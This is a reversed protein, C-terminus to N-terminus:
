INNKSLFNSIITSLAGIKIQLSDWNEKTLKRQSKVYSIGLIGILNNNIDKLTILYLSKSKLLKILLELDTHNILNTNPILIENEKHLESLTHPFFSVPINQLTTLVSTAVPSVKEHFLSFKQISKGTPYFNGGNHFQAIWINDCEISKQLTDLHKDILSNYEITDNFHKTKSQKSSKRKVREILVPGIVSTITAVIIAIIYEM